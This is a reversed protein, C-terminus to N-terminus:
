VGYQSMLDLLENHEGSGLDNSDAGLKNLSMIHKFSMDPKNKKYWDIISPRAWDPLAEIGHMKDASDAYAGSNIHLQFLEKKSKDYVVFLKDQENYSDYMNDCKASTCWRTGQGLFQAAGKSNPIRIWGQPGNFVTEIESKFKAIQTAKRAASKEDATPKRKVLFPAVVDYVAQFTKYSNIDKNEVERKHTLFTTLDNSLRNLDEIKNEQPNKVLLRAIWPMYAGNPTPDVEAITAILKDVDTTVQDLKPGLQDKIFKARDDKQTELLIQSLRM